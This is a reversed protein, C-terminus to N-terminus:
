GLVRDHQSSWTSLRVQLNFSGRTAAQGAEFATRVPRGRTFAGYLAESFALAAEDTLEGEFSIVAMDHTGLYKAVEASDCFALVVVAPMKSPEPALLRAFDEDLVPVNSGSGDALLVAGSERHAGVHLVFPRRVALHQLEAVTVDYHTEPLRHAPFQASIRKAEQTFSQRQQGQVGFAIFVDSGGFAWYDMSSTTTFSSVSRSELTISQPVLEHWRHMRGASSPLEVRITIPPKAPADLAPRPKSEHRSSLTRRGYPTLGLHREIDRWRCGAAKLLRARDILQAGVLDLRETSLANRYRVGLGHLEDMEDSTLERTV